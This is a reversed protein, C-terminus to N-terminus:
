VPLGPHAARAVLEGWSLRARSSWPLFLGLQKLATESDTGSQFGADAGIRPDEREPQRPAQSATRHTTVHQDLCRWGCLAQGCESCFFANRLRRGCQVCHSFGTM